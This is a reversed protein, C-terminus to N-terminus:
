PAGARPPCGSVGAATATSCALCNQFTVNYRFTGAPVAGLETIVEFTEQFDCNGRCNDSDRCCGSGSNYLPRDMVVTTGNGAAFRTSSPYTREGAETCGGRVTASTKHIGTVAVSGLARNTITVRAHVDDRCALRADAEPSTVAASLDSLTPPPPTPTPPPPTPPAAPSSGGCGGLAVVLAWCAGKALNM